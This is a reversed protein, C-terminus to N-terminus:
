KYIGQYVVQKRVQLQYGELGLFGTILVPIRVGAVASLKAGQNGKELELEISLDDQLAKAINVSLLQMAVLKAQSEDVSNQGLAFDEEVLGAILGGDLAIELGQALQSRVAWITIGDLFICLVLFIIWLWTLIRM